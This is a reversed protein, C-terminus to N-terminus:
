SIRWIKVAKFMEVIDSNEDFMHREDSRSTRAYQQKIADIYMTTTGDDGNYFKRWDKIFRQPNIQELALNDFSVIGDGFLLSANRYWDLMNKDVDNYQAYQVGNGFRKFGLILVNCNPFVNRLHNFDDLTHVGAILHFVFNNRYLKKVADLYAKHYSVGVGGNVAEIVESVRKTDTAFHFSNITASAFIGRNKVWELFSLLEPHTQTAGGGIALEVGAPLKSIVSKIVELNGHLGDRNSQEHCWIACPASCYNTIKLDISLPFEVNLEGDYTIIREGNDSISIIANGNKYKIATMKAVTM